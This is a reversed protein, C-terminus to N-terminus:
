GENLQCKQQGWKRRVVDKENRKLWSLYVYHVVSGSVAAVELKCRVAVKGSIDGPLHSFHEFGSENLETQAPKQWGASYRTCRNKKATSHTYWRSQQQVQQQRIMKDFVFLRPFYYGLPNSGNHGRAPSRSRQPDHSGGDRETKPSPLPSPCLRCLGSHATPSTPRSFPTKGRSASYGLLLSRCLPCVSSPRDFGWLWLPTSSFGEVTLTAVAYSPTDVQYM